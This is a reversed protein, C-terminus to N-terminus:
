AQIEGVLIKIFFTEGTADYRERDLPKAVYLVGSDPDLGFFGEDGGIIRYSIKNDVGKDGDVAKVPVFLHQTYTRACAAYIRALYCNICTM